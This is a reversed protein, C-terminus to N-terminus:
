HGYVACFLDFYKSFELIFMWDFNWTDVTM